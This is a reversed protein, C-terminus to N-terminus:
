LSRLSEPYKPSSTNLLWIAPPGYCIVPINFDRSIDRLHDIFSPHLFQAEDVLICSLSKVTEPELRTGETVLLDAPKELGSRSRVTGETFRTDLQPKLVMVKKNQLQYSHAVALLNLTKASGMTGYRFYLKAM